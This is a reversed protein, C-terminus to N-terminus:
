PRSRYEGQEPERMRIMEDLSKQLEENLPTAHPLRLGDGSPQGKHTLRPFFLVLLLLLWQATLFFLPQQIQRFNRPYQAAFNRTRFPYTGAFWSAFDDPTEANSASVIAMIPRACGNGENGASIACLESLM